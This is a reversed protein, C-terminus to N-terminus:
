FDDSSHGYDCCTCTCTCSSLESPKSWELKKRPVDPYEEFFDKVWSETDIYNREICVTQITDERLLKALKARLTGSDRIYNCSIDLVRLHPLTLAYDLVFEAGVASFRNGALSLEEIDAIDFGDEEAKEEIYKPAKTINLPCEHRESLRKAANDNMLGEGVLFDVVVGKKRSAGANDDDFTLGKGAVSVSAWMLCIVLGSILNKYM